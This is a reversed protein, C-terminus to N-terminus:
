AFTEQHWVERGMEADLEHLLRFIAGELTLSQNNPWVSTKEGKWATGSAVLKPAVGRARITVSGAYHGGDSMLEVKVTSGEHLDQMARMMQGIDIGDPGKWENRPKPAM